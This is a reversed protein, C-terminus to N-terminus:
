KTLCSAEHTRETGAYKEMAKRIDYGVKRFDHRIADADSEFPNLSKLDADIDIDDHPALSTRGFSFVSMMGLLFSQMKRNM